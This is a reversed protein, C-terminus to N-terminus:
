WSSLSYFDTSCFLLFASIPMRERQMSISQVRSIDAARQLNTECLSAARYRGCDQYKEYHASSTRGKKRQGSHQKKSTKCGRIQEGKKRGQLGLIVEALCFFVFFCGLQILSRWSQSDMDCPRHHLHCSSFVSSSERTSVSAAANGLRTHFLNSKDSDEVPSSWPFSSLLPLVTARTHTTQPTTFPNVSCKFPKLFFFILYCM